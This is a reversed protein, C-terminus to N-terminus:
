PCRLRETSLKLFDCRADIFYKRIQEEQQRAYKEYRVRILSPDILLTKESYPDAVVIQESEAPLSRDRPDSIM